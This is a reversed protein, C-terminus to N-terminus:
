SQASRGAAAGASDTSLGASGRPRNKLVDKVHGGEIFRTVLNAGDVGGFTVGVLECKNNM